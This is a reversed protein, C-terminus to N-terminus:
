RVSARFYSPLRPRVEDLAPAMFPRKPYEEGGRGTLGHEHEAGSIGVRAHSPGIVAWEKTPSVFYLIGRFLARKPSAAPEGPPRTKKTLGIKERAAKRVSGAAHGLSTIAGKKARDKVRQGEWRLQFGAGIMREGEDVRNAVRCPLEAM